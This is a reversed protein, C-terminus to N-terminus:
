FERRPGGSDVSSEGVFVVKSLKSVDFNMKSFAHVAELFLHSRRITIRQFLSEPSSMATLDILAVFRRYLVIYINYM